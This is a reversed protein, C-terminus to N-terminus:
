FLPKMTQFCVEQAITLSELTPQSEEYSGSNSNSAAESYNNRYGTPENVQSINNSRFDVYETNM